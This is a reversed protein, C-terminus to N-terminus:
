IQGIFQNLDVDFSAGVARWFKKGLIDVSANRHEFYRSAAIERFAV